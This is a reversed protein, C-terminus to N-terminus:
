GRSGHRPRATRATASSRALASLDSDRRDM